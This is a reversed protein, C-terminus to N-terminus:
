QLTGSGGSNPAATEATLISQAQAGFAVTLAAAVGAILKRSM